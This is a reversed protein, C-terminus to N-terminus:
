LSILNRRLGHIHRVNSLCVYKGDALMWRITDIGNVDCKDDGMYVCEDSVIRYDDFWKM